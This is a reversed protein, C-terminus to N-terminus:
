RGLRVVRSTGFRDATLVKIGDPFSRTSALHAETLGRQAKPDGSFAAICREPEANALALIAGECGLPGAHALLAASGTYLPHDFVALEELLRTADGTSDKCGVVPLDNLMAVPIGPSSVAPFHYALLPLDPAAKAVADYYPRPDAVGPPSLVLAAEAGHDAAQTTLAAAQRASPAGTGAIVPVRDGVAARVAELLAVREYPDLTSAEGTSGAVVVARIGLDVLRAAHDATAPADIDGREDFLTVLAVGVGTFVPTTM